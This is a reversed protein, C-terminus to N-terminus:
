TQKLTYAVSAGVAAESDTAEACLLRAPLRDPEFLRKASAAQHTSYFTGVLSSSFGCRSIRVECYRRFWQYTLDLINEREMDWEFVFYHFVMVLVAAIFRGYDLLHIRNSM